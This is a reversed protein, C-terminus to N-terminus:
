AWVSLCQGAHELLNDLLQRYNTYNTELLDGAHYWSQHRQSFTVSKSAAKICVRGTAYKPPPAQAQGGKRGVM